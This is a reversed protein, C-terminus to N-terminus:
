RANMCLSWTESFVLAYTRPRQEASPTSASLSAAAERSVASSATLSSTNAAVSAQCSRLSMLLM